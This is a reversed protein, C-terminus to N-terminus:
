LCNLSNLEITESHWASSAVFRNVDVTRGLDLETETPQKKFYTGADVTARTSDPRSRLPRGCSRVKM